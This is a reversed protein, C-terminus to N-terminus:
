VASICPSVTKGALSAGLVEESAIDNVNQTPMDNRQSNIAWEKLSKASTPERFLEPKQSSSTLLNRAHPREPKFEEERLDETQVQDYLRFRSSNVSRTMMNRDDPHRGVMLELDENNM